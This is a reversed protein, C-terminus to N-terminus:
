ATRRQTREPWWTPLRKAYRDAVIARHKELDAMDEAIRARLEPMDDLALRWDDLISDYLQLRERLYNANTM